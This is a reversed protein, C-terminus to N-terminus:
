CMSIYKCGVNDYSVKNGVWETYIQKQHRLGRIIWIRLWDCILDLGNGLIFVCNSFKIKYILLLHQGMMRRLWLVVQWTIVIRYWGSLPSHWCLYAAMPWVVSKSQPLDDSFIGGMINMIKFKKKCVEYSWICNLSINSNSIMLKLLFRIAFTNERKSHITPQKSWLNPQNIKHM